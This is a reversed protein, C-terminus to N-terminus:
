IFLYTFYMFLFLYIFVYIFLYILLHIFLRTFLLYILNLYKERKLVEANVSDMESKLESM